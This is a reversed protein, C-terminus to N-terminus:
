DSGQHYDLPGTFSHQPKTVCPFSSNLKWLSDPKITTLESALGLNLCAIILVIKLRVM